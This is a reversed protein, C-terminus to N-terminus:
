SKFQFDTVTRNHIINDGIHIHLTQRRDTKFHFLRLLDFIQYCCFFLCYCCSYTLLAQPWQPGTEPDRFLFM